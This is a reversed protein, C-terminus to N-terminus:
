NMAVSRKQGPCHQTCTNQEYNTFFFHMTNWMPNSWSCSDDCFNYCMLEEILPVEWPGLPYSGLQINPTNFLIASIEDQFYMPMVPLLNSANWSMNPATALDLAWHTGMTAICGGKTMQASTADEENLPMTFTPQSGQNLVVQTGLPEQYKYESDCMNDSTRFTVSLYFHGDVTPIWWDNDPQGYHTIGIGSIQGGATFYLTIPKLEDPGGSPISWAAGLNPVCWTYNSWGQNAADYVNMPLADYIPYTRFLSTGIGQSSVLGFLCAVLAFINVIKM